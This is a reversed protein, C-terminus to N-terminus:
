PTAATYRWAASSVRRSVYAAVVEEPLDRPTFSPGTPVRPRLRDVRFTRWDARGM